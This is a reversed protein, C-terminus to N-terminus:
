FGAIIDANLRGIIAAGLKVANEFDDYASYGYHTHAYRVPISIVIVPVAKRALHIAGANTSGATRVAEQVPIAHKEACDLALRMFRPNTIMRSDFHRLMPGKGLATQPIAAFTDDAPAGEFCIAADPNVYQATVQAGRLGVEEQAAFAATLSVDLRTGKLEELLSLVACCGLRNDFAKGCMVGNAQNYEFAADPIVPSAIGIKFDRGIEEASSAGVDILMSEIDPPMKKEADSMYHPPKSSIIGTIYAGDKNLIKVRHAAVNSAVWGSVPHFELMGNPRVAKIIFGVEDTHADLLVVPKGAGSDNRSLYLNRMADEACTGMGQAYCRVLRVAEDEFGSIGPANSLAEIMALTKQKDM